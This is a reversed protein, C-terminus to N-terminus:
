DLPSLSFLKERVQVAGLSPPPPSGDAQLFSPASPPLPLFARTYHLTFTTRELCLSVGTEM